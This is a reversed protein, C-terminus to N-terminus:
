LLALARDLLDALEHRELEVTPDTPDALQPWADITDNDFGHDIYRVHRRDRQRRRAWRLCVNRAIAALWPFRASEDHLKDRRRWAAALTEQALDEAVGPDGTLRACLRVLRGREQVAHDPTSPTITGTSGTGMPRRGGHRPHVYRYIAPS